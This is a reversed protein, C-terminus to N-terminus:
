GEGETLLHVRNAERHGWIQATLLERPHLMDHEDHGGGDFKDKGEGEDDGGGRDLALAAAYQCEVTEGEEQKGEGVKECM